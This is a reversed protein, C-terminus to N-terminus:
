PSTVCKRWNAADFTRGARLAIGMTPFLGRRSHASRGGAFGGGSSKAARDAQCLHCRWARSRPFSDMSVSRDQCIGRAISFQRFFRIRAANTGYRANPLTVSFTLLNKAEFGPDVAVL